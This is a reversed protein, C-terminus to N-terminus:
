AVLKAPVRFSTVGRQALQDNVEQILNCPLDTAMEEATTNISPSGEELAELLTAWQQIEITKDLLQKCLESNWIAQDSSKNPKQATNAVDAKIASQTPHGNPDSWGHKHLTAICHIPSIGYLHSLDSLTLWTSCPAM